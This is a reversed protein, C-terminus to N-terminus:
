KLRLIPKKYAIYFLEMKPLNGPSSGLAHVSITTWREM